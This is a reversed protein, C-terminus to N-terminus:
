RPTDYTQYSYYFTRKIVGLGDHETMKAVLGDDRYEYSQTTAVRNDSTRKVIRHFEGSAMYTYSFFHSLSDNKGYVRKETRLDHDFRNLARIMQKLEKRKRM